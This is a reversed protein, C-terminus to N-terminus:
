SVALPTCPSVAFCCVQECHVLVNEGRVLREDIWKVVGELHPHLDITRANSIPVRYTEHPAESGYQSDSDSDCAQVVSTIDKAILIATDQVAALSGLYLAGTGTSARAPIILHMPTRLARSAAYSFESTHTM